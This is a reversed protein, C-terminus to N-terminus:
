NFLIGTALQAGIQTAFADTSDSGDRVPQGYSFTLDGYFGGEKFGAGATLTTTELRVSPDLGPLFFTTYPQNGSNYQNQYIVGMRFAWQKSLWREGGISISYTEYGTDGINNGAANVSTGSVNQLSAQLGITFNGPNELGVGAEVQLTQQNEDTATTGAANFSNQRSSEISLLGGTKIRLGQPLPLSNKFAGVVETESGSIIQYAPTVLNPNSSDTQYSTSYNAFRTVVTAQLSGPSNFYAEPGFTQYTTGTLTGTESSPNTFGTPILNFQLTQLPSQLQYDYIGGIEFREQQPGPDAPFCLLLGNDLSMASSNDQGSLIEGGNIFQDALPNVTQTPALETGLVVPGFNYATRLLERTRNNGQTDLGLNDQGETYLYDADAQIAWRNMPFYILGNYNITNNTMDGMTGFYNRQFHDATESESFWQASADLRNQPALLALGAPNGVTFPNLDYVEDEMVLSLGGTANVRVESATAIKTLLIILVLFFCFRKHFM